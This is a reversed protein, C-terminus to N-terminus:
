YLLRMRAYANAIDPDIIVLDTINDVLAITNVCERIGDVVFSQSAIM